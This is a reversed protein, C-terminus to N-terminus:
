PRLFGVIDEVERMIPDSLARARRAGDRLIGDIEAKDNMLRKMESGIKGVTSVALDALVQKFFSFERGEFETLVDKLPKDALGAYISLLNFAEPREAERKADVHGKDDLADTGPLPHPDTKAKRIKLAVADGNDTM